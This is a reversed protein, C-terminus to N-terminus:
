HHFAFGIGATPHHRGEVGSLGRGTIFDRFEARLSFGRKLRIDVGGGTDFVGHWTLQSAISPAATTVIRAEQFGGAGGGASVFLALRPHVPAMLRLGPAYANWQSSGYGSLAPSHLKGNGFGVEVEAWLSAASKRLIQYGYGYSMSFSAGSSATAGGVNQSHSPVLGFSWFFDSNQVRQAWIPGSLLSYVILLLSKRMM